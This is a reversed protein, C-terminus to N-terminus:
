FKLNRWLQWAHFASIEGCPLKKGSAQSTLSTVFILDPALGGDECLMDLAPGMPKVNHRVILQSKLHTSVGESSNSGLTGDSFTLYLSHLPKFCWWRPLQWWCCQCRQLKGLALSPFVLIHSSSWSTQITSLQSYLQPSIRQSLHLNLPNPLASAPFCSFLLFLSLFPFIYFMQDVKWKVCATNRWKVSVKSSVNLYENVHCM